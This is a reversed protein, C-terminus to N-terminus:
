GLSLQIRLTALRGIIEDIIYKHSTAHAGLNICRHSTAQALGFLRAVHCMRRVGEEVKMGQMGRVSTGSGGGKCPRRVETEGSTLNRLANSYTASVWM